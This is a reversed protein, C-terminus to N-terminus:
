IGFVFRISKKLKEIEISEFYIFCMFDWFCKIMVCQLYCWEFVCLWGCYRLMKYVCKSAFLHVEGANLWICNTNLCNWKLDQKEITQQRSFFFCISKWNQFLIMCLELFVYDWINLKSFVHCFFSLYSTCIINMSFRMMYVFLLAVISTYSSFLHLYTPEHCSGLFCQLIGKM